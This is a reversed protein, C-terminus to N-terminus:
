RRERGRRPNVALKLATAQFHTGNFSVELCQTGKFVPAELFLFSLQGGAGVRILKGTKAVAPIGM